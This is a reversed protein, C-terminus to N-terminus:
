KKKLMMVWHLVTEMDYNIFINNHNFDTIFNKFLTPELDSEISIKINLEQM